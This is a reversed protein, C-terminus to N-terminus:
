NSTWEEAQLSLAVGTANIIGLVQYLQQVSARADARVYVVDRAMVEVLSPLASRFEDIDMPRDEMYVRGERTLTVILPAQVSTIPSVDAEPMVIEIGGQLAPAVIIFVVLLTFAVDVLSTVNIEATLPLDGRDRRHRAM